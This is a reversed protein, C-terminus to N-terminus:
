RSLTGTGGASQSCGGSTHPLSKYVEIEITECVTKFRRSVDLNNFRLVKFDEKELYKTREVDINGQEPMTHGKGDLEIILKAKACYFDVIYEGIAKQRQFRVPFTRLFRYWLKNEWPTARKRLNKALIINNKNYEKM